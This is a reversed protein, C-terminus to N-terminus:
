DERFKKSKRVWPRKSNAVKINFDFATIYADSIIDSEEATITQPLTAMFSRLGDFVDDFGNDVLKIAALTASETYDDITKM